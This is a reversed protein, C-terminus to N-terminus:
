LSYVLLLWGFIWARSFINSFWDTYGWTIAEWTRLQYYPPRDGDQIKLPFNWIGVRNLTACRTVTQRIVTASHVILAFICRCFTNFHRTRVWVWHPTRQVDIADSIPQSQRQQSTLTLRHWIAGVDAAAAAAPRRRASVSFVPGSVASRVNLQLM